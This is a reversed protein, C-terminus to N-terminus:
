LYIKPTVQSTIPIRLRRISIDTLDSTPEGNVLSGENLDSYRLWIQGLVNWDIKPKFDGNDQSILFLPFILLVVLIRKRFGKKCKKM